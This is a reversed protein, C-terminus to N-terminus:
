NECILNFHIEMEFSTKWGEALLNWSNGDPCLNMTGLVLVVRSFFLKTGAAKEGKLHIQFLDQIWIKICM